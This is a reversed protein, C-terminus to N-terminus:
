AVFNTVWRAVISRKVDYQSLASNMLRSVIADTDTLDAGEDRLMGVFVRTVNQAAKFRSFDDPAITIM